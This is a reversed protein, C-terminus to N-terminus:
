PVDRGWGLLEMRTGMGRYKGAHGTEHVHWPRVATDCFIPIGARHLRWCYYEEVCMMQFNGEENWRVYEPTDLSFRGFVNRPVVLCDAGPFGASILTGSDLEAASIERQTGDDNFRRCVPYEPHNRAAVLGGVVIDRWSMLRAVEGSSQYLCDIGQWVLRDYGGEIASNIGIQRGLRTTDDQWVMDQPSLLIVSGGLEAFAQAHDEQDTVLQVDIPASSIEAGKICHVTNECFKDFVYRKGPTIHTVNFLTRM